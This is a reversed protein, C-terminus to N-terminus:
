DMIELARSLDRRARAAGASLRPRSRPVLACRVAYLALRYANGVVQVARLAAVAARGQTREFYRRQSRVFVRELEGRDRSGGGTHAVVAEPLYACAHGARALRFALDVEEFYLHYAEDFGGVAALADRRAALCAGVLWDTDAPASQGPPLDTRLYRRHLPNEPWIRHGFLLECAELAVSPFGRASAAGIADAGTLRPGALAHRPSAELFSALRDLSGPGFVTDPNALIAIPEDTAALAQNLAAGYGRNERNEIVLADQGLTDHALARALAPTGDTSANDVIVLRAPRGALGEAVSALCAPLHEASRHTVLAVAVRSSM